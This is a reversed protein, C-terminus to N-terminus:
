NLYSISKKYKRLYEVLLRKKEDIRSSKLTFALISKEEESILSLLQYFIEYDKMKEEGQDLM